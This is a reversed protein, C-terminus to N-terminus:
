HILKIYLFIWAFSQPQLFSFIGFVPGCSIQKGKEFELFVEQPLRPSGEAPHGLIATYDTLFSFVSRPSAPDVTWQQLREFIM